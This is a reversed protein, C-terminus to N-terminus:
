PLMSLFRPEHIAIHRSHDELGSAVARHTNGSTDRWLIDSTCDSNFDHAAWNPENQWFVGRFQLLHNVSAYTFIDGPGVDVTTPIREPPSKLEHIRM